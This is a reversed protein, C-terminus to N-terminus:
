PRNRIRFFEAWTQTGKSSNKGNVSSLRMLSKWAILSASIVGFLEFATSACPISNILQLLFVISGTGFLFVVCAMDHSAKDRVGRALYGTARKVLSVGHKRVFEIEESDRARRASEVFSEPRFRVIMVVDQLYFPASRFKNRRQKRKSCPASGLPVGNFGNRQFFRDKETRRTRRNIMPKPCIFGVKNGQKDGITIGWVHSVFM